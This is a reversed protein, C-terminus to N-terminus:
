GRRRPPTLAQPAPAKAQPAPLAQRARRGRCAFVVRAAGAAEAAAGEVANGASIM